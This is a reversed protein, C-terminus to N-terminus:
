TEQNLLALKEDIKTYGISRMVDSLNKELKLNEIGSGYSFINQIPRETEVIQGSLTEQIKGYLQRRMDTSLM